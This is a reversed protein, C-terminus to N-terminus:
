EGKEQAEREEKTLNNAIDYCKELIENLRKENGSLYLYGILAELGTAVHYENANANKAKTHVKTNRGRKYVGLEDENLFQELKKFILCQSKASVYNKAKKHLDKVRMDGNKLLQSRIFAEYVGDGMYALSLSSYIRHADIKESM